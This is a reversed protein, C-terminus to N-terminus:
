VLSLSILEVSNWVTLSVMAEMAEMARGPTQQLAYGDELRVQLLDRIAMRLENAM